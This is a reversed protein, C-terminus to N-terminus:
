NVVPNGVYLGVADAGHEKRVRVLPRVAADLAREWDVKEWGTATRIVPARLRDPDELLAKLGIAKPCVHGRSLVDDEDGRLSEVREGDVVVRLGCLSECLNCTALREEGM